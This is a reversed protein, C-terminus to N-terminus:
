AGRMVEGIVPSSSAAGDPWCYRKGSSSCFRARQRTQHFRAFRSCNKENPTM